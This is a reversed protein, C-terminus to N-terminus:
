GRRPRRHDHWSRQLPLYQGGEAALGIRIEPVLPAAEPGLVIEDPRVICGAAALGAVLLLWRGGRMM